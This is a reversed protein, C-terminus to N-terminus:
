ERKEKKGKKGKEEEEKTKKEIQVNREQKKKRNTCRDLVQYLVWLDIATALVHKALHCGVNENIDNM